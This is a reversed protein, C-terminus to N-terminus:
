DPPDITEFTKTDFYTHSDTAAAVNASSETCGAAACVAGSGFEPLRVTVLETSRVFV